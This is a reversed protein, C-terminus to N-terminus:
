VCVEYYAHHELQFTFYRELLMFIKRKITQLLRVALSYICMIYRCEVNQRGHMTIYECLLLWCTASNRLKIEICLQVHEM